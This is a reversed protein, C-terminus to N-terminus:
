EISEIALLMLLVTEALKEDSYRRTQFLKWQARKGPKDNPTEPLDVCKIETNILKLKLTKSVRKSRASAEEGEVKCPMCLCYLCDSIDSRLGMCCGFVPTLKTVKYPEGAPEQDWM